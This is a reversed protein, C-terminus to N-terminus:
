SIKKCFYDNVFTYNGKLDNEFYGEKINELIERYKKESEKSKWEAKSM